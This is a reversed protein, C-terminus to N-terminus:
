KFVFVKHTGAPVKFSAAAGVSTSGLVKDDVSVTIKRGEVAPVLVRIQERTEVAFGLARDHGRYIRLRAPGECELEINGGRRIVTRKPGFIVDFSVGAFLVREVRSEEAATVSGASMGSWPDAAIVEEIGPWFMLGSFSTRAPDDGSELARGDVSSYHDSLRGTKETTARAMATCKRALEAAEDHFGYRRLGVYILYNSLAWVAGRGPTQSVYAPDDRAITALPYDSWFKKPDRLTTLMRKAREEDPLGALLPYFNELSLRRSFRGDLHRNLYLGVLVSWLKDNFTILIREWRAQL